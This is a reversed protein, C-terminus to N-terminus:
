RECETSVISYTCQDSSTTGKCELDIGTTRVFTALRKKTMTELPDGPDTPYQATIRAACSATGQWEVTVNCNKNPATAPPNWIRATSGCRVPPGPSVAVGQSVEAVNALPFPPACSIRNITYTCKKPSEASTPCVLTLKRVNRFVENVPPRNGFAKDGTRGANGRAGVSTVFARCLPDDQGGSYTVDVTCGVPEDPFTQLEFITSSNGRAEPFGACALDGSAVTRPKTLVFEPCAFSALALMAIAIRPLNEKIRRM